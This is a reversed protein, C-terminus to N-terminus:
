KKMHLRARSGITRGKCKVHEELVIARTCWPGGASPIHKSLMQGTDVGGRKYKFCGKRPRQGEVGKCEGCLSCRGSKFAQFVQLDKLISAEKGTCRSTSVNADQTEAAADRVGGCTEAESVEPKSLREKGGM